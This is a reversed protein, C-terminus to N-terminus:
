SHLRIRVLFNRNDPHAKHAALFFLLMSENKSSFRNGQNMEFLWDLRVADQLECDTNMRVTLRLQILINHIGFLIYCSKQTGKTM